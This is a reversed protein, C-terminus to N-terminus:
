PGSAFRARRLRRPSCNAFRLLPPGLGGLFFGVGVSDDGGSAGALEAFGAPLLERLSTALWPGAVWDWSPM